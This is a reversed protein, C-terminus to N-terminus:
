NITLEVFRALRDTSETLLKLVRGLNRQDIQKGPQITSKSDFIPRVNKVPQLMDVPVLLDKDEIARRNGDSGRVYLQVDLTVSM